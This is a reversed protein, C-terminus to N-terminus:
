LEFVCESKHRPPIFCYEELFHCDDKENQPLMLIPSQKITLLMDGEWREMCWESSKGESCM